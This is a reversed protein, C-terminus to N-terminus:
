WICIWSHQALWNLEGRKEWGGERERESRESNAKTYMIITFSAIEKAYINTKYIQTKM